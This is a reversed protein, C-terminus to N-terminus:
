HVTDLTEDWRWGSAPFDHTERFNFFQFFFFFSSLYHCHVTTQQRGSEFSGKPGDDHRKTKQTKWWWSDLCGARRTHRLRCWRNFMDADRCLLCSNPIIVIIVDISLFLPIMQVMQPAGTGQGARNDKTKVETKQIYIPHFGGWLVHLIISPSTPILCM